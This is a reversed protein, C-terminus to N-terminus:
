HHVRVRVSRFVVASSAAAVGVWGRAGARPQEGASPDFFQPGVAQDDLALAEPGRPGVTLRLRHDPGLRRTLADTRMGDTVTRLSPYARARARRVNVRTPNAGHGFPDVFVYDTDVHPDGGAGPRGRVFAGLGGDWPNQTFEVELDYGKVDGVEALGFLGTGTCNVRLVKKGGGADDLRYESVGPNDPWALVTPPRDLLEYWEGPVFVRPPLEGAGQREGPNTGTTSRTDQGGGLWLGLGVVAALAAGVGAVVWPGRRRAGRVETVTTVGATPLRGDAPVPPTLPSVDAPDPRVLRVLRPLDHGACFPAVARAVEAPSQPRRAPDKELMRRVLDDLGPALEPCAAAASPVPAENHAKFKKYVTDYEAGAYPAAGTLLAFLTCGLSYVDARIDVRSERAQEPAIFDATGMVAGTETFRGDPASEGLRALGLDLIRVVGDRGLLLNSPKVDRHVMDHRDIFALGEAAQRVVECADAAALRGAAALVRGLDAGDVFEMALYYQGGAEGGDTARVINPHDLRALAKMERGFRAVGDPAQARQPFLVKLAVLRNLGTHRAKFVTGHAGRGLKGLLEYQGIVTRPPPAPAFSATDGGARPADAWSATPNLIERITSGTWTGLDAFRERAEAVTLPRRARARYEWEIALLERFLRPRLAEPAARVVGELPVPTGSLWGAEFGDCLEDILAGPDKGEHDAATSM